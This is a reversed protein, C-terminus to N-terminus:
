AIKPAMNASKKNQTLVQQIDRLGSDEKRLRPIIQSAVVYLLILTPLALVRVTIKDIM